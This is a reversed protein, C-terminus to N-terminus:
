QYEKTYQDMDKTSIAKSEVEQPMQKGMIATMAKIQEDRTAYDSEFAGSNFNYVRRTTLHFGEKEDDEDRMCPCKSMEYFIFVADMM